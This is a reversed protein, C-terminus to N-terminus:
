SALSLLRHRVDRCSGWATPCGQATGGPLCTHGCACVRCAQGAESVQAWDDGDEAAGGAAGQVPRDLLAHLKALAMVEEHALDMLYQFFEQADQQEQEPAAGSKLALM